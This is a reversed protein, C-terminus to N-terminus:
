TNYICFFIKNFKRWNQFTKVNCELKSRSFVSIVLTLNSILFFLFFQFSGKKFNSGGMSVFNEGVEEKIEREREKAYYVRRIAFM